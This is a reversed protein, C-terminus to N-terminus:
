AALHLYALGVDTLLAVQLDLHDAGARVTLFTRARAGLGETAAPAREDELGSLDDDAFRGAM